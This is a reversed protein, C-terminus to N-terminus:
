RISIVRSILQHGPSVQLGTVMLLPAQLCAVIRSVYLQLPIALTAVLVNYHIYLCVCMYMYIYM